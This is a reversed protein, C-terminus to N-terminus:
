RGSNPKWPSPPKLMDLELLKQRVMKLLLVDSECRERVVTWDSKQVPKGEIIADWQYAQEWQRHNMSLKAIPVELLVALDDLGKKFGKAKPLKITDQALKTGLVGLDSGEAKLRMLDAQLVGFDFRLLNHAVVVDAENYVKLFESFM